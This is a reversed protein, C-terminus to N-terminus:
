LTKPEYKKRMNEGYWQLILSIPPISLSIFALVSNGWGVGLHSYMTLGALPLLGGGISRMFGNAALASAAYITYVDILYLTTSMFIIMIGVGTLAEGIMPAIWHIKYEATWGFIFLGAPLFLGGVPLLFLRYEAKRQGGGNRASASAGYRDSTSSIIMTGCFTGCGLGIFALGSINTSWGYSEQYVISISTILLNLIGYTIAMYLACLASIPSRVLLKMPRVIGRWLVTRWSISVTNQSEDRSGQEFIGTNRRLRDLKRQLLVPAYTERTILGMMIAVFGGLIAVLWFVWRWGKATSLFGGCIPGLAPGMVPGLIFLGM